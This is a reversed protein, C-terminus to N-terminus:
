IPNTTNFAGRFGIECGAVQCLSTQM